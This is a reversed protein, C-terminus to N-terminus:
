AARVGGRRRRAVRGPRARADAHGAPAHRRAPPRHPDGRAPRARAARAQRRRRGLPRPPSGHPGTILLLLPGEALVLALTAQRLMSNWGVGRVRTRRTGFAAAYSRAVTSATSSSASM